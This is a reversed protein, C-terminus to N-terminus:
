GNGGHNGGPGDVRIPAMANEPVFSAVFSDHGTITSTPNALSSRPWLNFTYQSLPVGGAPTPLLAPDLTVRVNPGDIKVSGPPLTTAAGTTLDRVSASVGSDHTVSVVVVADFTINPRGFFPTVAKASGRNIGFVYFSDDASTAPNQDINGVMRGTLTLGKGPQVRASAAVVDLDARKPGVYFEYFNPAKQVQGSFNQNDNGDNQGSNASQDMPSAHGRGRHHHHVEVAYHGHDDGGGRHILGAATAAGGSLLRRSELSEM